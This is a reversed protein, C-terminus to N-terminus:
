YKILSKSGSVKPYQGLWGFVEIEMRHFVDSGIAKIPEGIKSSDSTLHAFTITHIVDTEKKPLHAEVLVASKVRCVIRWPFRGVKWRPRFCM